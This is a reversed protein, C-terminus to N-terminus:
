RKVAYLGKKNDPFLLFPKYATSLIHSKSDFETWIRLEGRIFWTVKCTM